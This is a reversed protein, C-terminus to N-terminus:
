PRRTRTHRADHPDRRGYDEKDTRAQSREVGVGAQQGVEGGSAIQAVAQLDDVSVATAASEIQHHAIRRADAEICAGAVVLHPRQM